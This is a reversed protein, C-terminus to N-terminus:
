AVIAAAVHCSALAPSCRFYVDAIRTSERSLPTRTAPLSSPIKRLSSPPSTTAVRRRPPIGPAACRLLRRVLRAIPQSGRLAAPQEHGGIAADGKLAAPIQPHAAIDGVDSEVRGRGFRMATAPHPTPTAIESSRPLVQRIACRRAATSRPTSRRTRGRWARGCRRWRARPPSRRTAPNRGSTSWLRAPLFGPIIAHSKDRLPFSRCRHCRRRRQRNTSAQQCEADTQRGRRAVTRRELLADLRHDVCVRM